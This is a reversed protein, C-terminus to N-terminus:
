FRPPPCASIPSEGTRPRSAFRGAERFATGAPPSLIRFFQPAAHHKLAMPTQPASDRCHRFRQNLLFIINLHFRRTMINHLLGGFGIQDSQEVQPGHSPFVLHAGANHSRSRELLIAGQTEEPVTPHLAVPLRAPQVATFWKNFLRKGFLM